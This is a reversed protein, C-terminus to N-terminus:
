DDITTDLFFFRVNEEDVTISKLKYKQRELELSRWHYFSSYPVSVKDKPFIFSDGHTLKEWKYKASRKQVPLTVNKDVVIDENFSM